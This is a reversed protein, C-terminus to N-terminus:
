VVQENLLMGIAYCMIVDWSLNMFHYMKITEWGSWLMKFNNKTQNWM